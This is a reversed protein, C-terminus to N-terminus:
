ARRVGFQIISFSDFNTGRFPREVPWKHAANEIYEILSFRLRKGEGRGSQGPWGAGLLGKLRGDSGTADDRKVTSRLGSRNRQGALLFKTVVHVGDDIAPFLDSQLAIAGRAQEQCLAAVARPM